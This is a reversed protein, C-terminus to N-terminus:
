ADTQGKVIMWWTEGGDGNNRQRSMAIAMGSRYGPLTTRSVLDSRTPSPGRGDTLGVESRDISTSGVLQGVSTGALQGAPGASTGATHGVSTAALQGESRGGSAGGDMARRDM